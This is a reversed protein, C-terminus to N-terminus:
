DSTSYIYQDTTIDERCLKGEQLPRTSTTNNIELEDKRSPFYKVNCKQVFYKNSLNCHYIASSSTPLSKGQRCTQSFLYKLKIFINDKTKYYLKNWGNVKRNVSIQKYNEIFKAFNSASKFYKIKNDEDDSYFIIRVGLKKKSIYMKDMLGVFDYTNKTINKYYLKLPFYYLVFKDTLDYCYKEAEEYSNFSKDDIFLSEISDSHDLKNIYKIKFSNYFSKPKIHLLKTAM